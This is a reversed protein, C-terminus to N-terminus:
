SDSEAQCLNRLGIEWLKFLCAVAIPAPPPLFERLIDLVDKIDSWKKKKVEPQCLHKRSREVIDELLSDGMLVSEGADVAILTTADDLNWDCESLTNELIDLSAKSEPTEGLEARFQSFDDPKIDTM